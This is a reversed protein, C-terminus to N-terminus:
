DRTADAPRDIRLNWGRETLERLSRPSGQGRIVATRHEHQLEKRAFFREVQDTWVLYDVPLPLILEGDRSEYVIGAGVTRVTGGRAREGLERDVLRLADVAFRAELESQATVALELLADCGQAPGLRELADVFATQLTPTYVGRRLFQRMLLDDRCLKALQGQNRERVQEPDLKWVIENLQTGHDIVVAGTGGIAGIATTAAFRGGSGVWALRDLRDRLLPNTTYPDIGLREALDRRVQGFKAQRKLERGAERGISGTSRALWSKDDGEASSRPVRADTMPGSASPYASGETGFQNAARDSVTQAQRGLTGLRNGFYRAVGRPLGLVTDIPHMLVQGLARGTDLVSKAAADTFAQSRTVRDLAELAPLEAIRDALIESSEASLPGFATEITFHAMYGRIEVRSDVTYGPGSLLTPEAFALAELVPETEPLTEDGAAHASALAFTLALLALRIAHVPM